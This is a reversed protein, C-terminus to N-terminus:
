STTAEMAEAIEVAEKALDEQPDECYPGAHEQVLTNFENLAGELDGNRLCAWIMVLHPAFEDRATLIFVPDTPDDTTITM